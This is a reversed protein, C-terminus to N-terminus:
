FSSPLHVDISVCLHRHVFRYSHFPFMDHANKRDKPLRREANVSIGCYYVLICVAFIVDSFQMLCCDCLSDMGNCECMGLCNCFAICSIPKCDGSVVVVALWKM